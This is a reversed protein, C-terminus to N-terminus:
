GDELYLLAGIGGMMAVIAPIWAAILPPLTGSVGLAKVVDRVFFLAFGLILGAAVVQMAHGKRPPRLSVAAALLILSAYLLPESLM